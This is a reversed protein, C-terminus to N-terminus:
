PHEPWRLAGTETGDPLLTVLLIKRSNM